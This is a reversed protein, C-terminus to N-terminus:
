EPAITPCFGNPLLKVVVLMLVGMMGTIRVVFEINTLIVFPPAILVLGPTVTKSGVTASLAHKLLGFSTGSVSMACDGIKWDSGNWNPGVAIPVVCYM